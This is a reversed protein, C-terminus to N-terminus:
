NPVQSDDWTLESSGTQQLTTLLASAGGLIFSSIVDNQALIDSPTFFAELGSLIDRKKSDITLQQAAFTQLLTATNQQQLTLYGFSSNIASQEVPALNFYQNWTHTNLTSWANSEYGVSTSIQTANSAQTDFLTYISRFSGFFANINSLSRRSEQIEPTELNAIPQMNAQADEVARYIYAEYADQYASRRYRCFTERYEQMATDRQNILDMVEADYTKQSIIDNNLLTSNTFVTAYYRAMLGGPGYLSAQLDTVVGNASDYMSQYHRVNSLSSYYQSAYLSSNSMHMSYLGSLRDYERNLGRITNSLVTYAREESEIRERDIDSLGLLTSAGNISSEYLTSYHKIDWTYQSIDLVAQDYISSFLAVQQLSSVKYGRYAIQTRKYTDIRSDYGALLTQYATTNALTALTLLNSSSAEKSAQAAQKQELQLMAMDRAAKLVSNGTPTGSFTRTGGGGGWSGEWALQAADFQSQAYSSETIMGTLESLAIAYQENLLAANYMSSTTSLADMSSKYNIYATRENIRRQVIDQGIRTRDDYLTSLENSRTKWTSRKQALVAGSQLEATRANSLDVMIKALQQQKEDYLDKYGTYLWVSTSYGKATSNFTSIDYSFSSMSSMYQEKYVLLKSDLASIGDLQNKITSDFQSLTSIYLKTTGRGGGQQVAVDEIWTLGDYEWVDSTDLAGQQSEYLAIKATNGQIEAKLSDVVGQSQKKLYTYLAFIGTNQNLTSLQGTISTSLSSSYLILSSLDMKQLEDETYLVVDDNFLFPARPLIPIRGTTSIYDVTGYM